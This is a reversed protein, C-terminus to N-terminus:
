FVHLTVVVIVLFCLTVLFIVLFCLSYGLCYGSFMSLLWSLLWFVYLTVFVIVLFGPSYCLCYGSFELCEFVFAESVNEFNFPLSFGVVFTM